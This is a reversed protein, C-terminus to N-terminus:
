YCAHKRLLVRQPPEKGTPTIRELMFVIEFTKLREDGARTANWSRCLYRGYEAWQKRHAKSWLNMLYKRWRESSYLPTGPFPKGWDVPVEERSYVNVEKGNGLRGDMVYWGDERLPRPSFMNWRQDLRPIKAIGRLSSPFTVPRNPLESLNWFLLVAFASVVIANGVLGVGLPAPRFQLFRDAMRSLPDQFRFVLDHVVDALRCFFSRSWLPALWGLVPSKQLVRLLARGGYVPAEGGTVLVWTREKKMLKEVADAEPVPRLKLRGRLLLFERALCLGRHSFHSAPDCYLTEPKSRPALKGGMWDWLASPLFLLLAVACFAPFMGISMCAAIGLHLALFAGFTALRFFSFYLPVFFLFPGILELWWTAVTMVPLVSTFQRVWVGIPTVFQDVRLVSLIARAEGHWEADTKFLASFFYMVCVQLLIAATAPSLHRKSSPVPAGELTADVSYKAGLPLFMSFFLVERILVDGSNLILYNRNQLSVVFAWSLVTMLRTRYGVLLALAFVAQIAFLAGQVWVEGSLLHFSLFWRDMSQVLVHRPLTGWDTYHAALSAARSALDALTVSALGIRFLALTRYDIGFLSDLSALPRGWISPVKTSAPPSDPVVAESTKNRIFRNM